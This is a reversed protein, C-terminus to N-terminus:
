RKCDTRLDQDTILGGARKVGFAFRQHLVRQFREHAPARADHHRMTQGRNGAEVADHHEVVAFHGFVARVGFEDFGAALVGVEPVALGAGIWLLAPFGLLLKVLPSAGLVYPRAFARGMWFLAFRSVLKERASANPM